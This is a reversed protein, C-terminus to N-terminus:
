RNPCRGKVAYIPTRNGTPDGSAIFRSQLAEFGNKCKYQLTNETLSLESFITRIIREKERPNAFSYIPLGDKILESLKRIDKVTEAMSVDSVAEESNLANLEGNLQAEEAVLSEPTYVGSKLLPLRNALLYRLDERIKKKHREGAELQDQRKMDFLVTDTSTRADMEALEDDTFVLNAILCGIKEVIFDFNVNRLMNPCDTRCRVAYYTIGKKIYPTYARGCLACRAFGRLPHDILEIYHVTKHRMRLAEQTKNFLEDTVIAELSNTLAYVGDENPLRGTYTRNTLIKHISNFTPLHSVAKINLRVDDEEEALIEETVRRRRIPPMTFGQKIAHRALDALSWDGTAALEFLTRIVPAREPDIPKHEMTGQNLYGVPAKHTCLGRARANRITLTVKERTVRSHHEAFMGDIDMHLEGTSTKDYQALTFRIDIGAKMLKRILTDDGKNRSARDWCLFIVGKFYGGSLMQILRHFKPREVRYQVINGEGFTLEIDEKFGSHRESVIGDTAFGELTLTAVSLGNRLAFRMNEAKQYKISNKQNDTDDTSKRNYILYCDRYTGSEIDQLIKTGTKKM